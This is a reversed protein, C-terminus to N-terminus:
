VYDAVFGCRVVIQAFAPRAALGNPAYPRIPLYCQLLPKTLLVNTLKKVVGLACVVSGVALFGYQYRATLKCVSSPMKYAGLTEFM